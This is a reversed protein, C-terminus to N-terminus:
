GTRRRFDTMEEQIFHEILTRYMQEVVDPSLGEEEAWQRRQRLVAQFREEARVEEESTKFQVIARVYAARKGLLAVVERDIQDIAARIDAKSTCEDPSKM